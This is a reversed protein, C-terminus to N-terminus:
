KRQLFEIVGEHLPAKNEFTIINLPNIEKYVNNLKLLEVRKRVLINITEKVVNNPTETTASLATQIGITNIKKQNNYTNKHIVSQIFNPLTEKIKDQEARTLPVIEAGCNLAQKYIRNPHGVFYIVADVKNQCILNPINASPEENIEAFDSLSWGFAKIINEFYIRSGSGPNGINVRKGKLDSWHKIKSNQTKLITLHEIHLTAVSRIHPNKQYYEYQLPLQSIAFNFEGNLHKLNYEAGKSIIATCDTINNVRQLLECIARSTPYFVAKKSGTGIKVDYALINSTLSALILIALFIKTKM